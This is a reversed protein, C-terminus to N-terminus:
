AHVLTLHCHIIVIFLHVLHLTTYRTIEPVPEQPGLVSLHVLLAVRSQGEGLDVEQLPAVLGEECVVRHTAGCTKADPYVNSSM